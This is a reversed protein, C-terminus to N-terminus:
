TKSRKGASIRAMKAAVARERDQALVWKLEGPDKPLGIATDAAIGAFDLVSRRPRPRILMGDKGIEFEVDDGPKVGLRDRIAKPLTIQGQSTIRARPRNTQTRTITM